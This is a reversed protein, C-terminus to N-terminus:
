QNRLEQPFDSSCGRYYDFADPACLGWADEFADLVDQPLPTAENCCRLNEDLQDLRSAGILVGDDAGLMSHCMMWSFAAQTLGLGHVDCAARLLEVAEFNNPKYFRDLYNPNEKFRGDLVEGHLTHKGTLLGAALSNYAVFAIGRERLLPLLEAEVRRNLPSYIGQYVAPQNWGNAACLQICRATEASSYNSLGLSGVLDQSILEDVCELTEELPHESDPRHLYLVDCRTLQLANLSAGLQARLGAPSLGGPESPNAKTAVSFRRGLEGRPLM